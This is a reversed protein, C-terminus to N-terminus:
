KVYYEVLARIARVANEPYKYTPVGSNELNSKLLETFEGGTSVIILPKKKMDNLDIIADIVDTSLLPTQYLVIALVIDVESDNLCKEISEKYMASTANGVLDIPNGVVVISSFIKKLETVTKKGLKALNLNNKVIADTTLIGYGGGNTIIQIRSGKPKMTKELIKAVEFMEELGEANIIGAQKFVGFYVQASGALAGTHSLAAKSGEETIGGKIAIIPKKKAVKKCVSLFKKGDNVGEVYLCIVKTTPDKGLYEIIDSEDIIMANGYSVFKSFGLSSDTAMDLIASGVAGSQCVFSIGGPGPRTM